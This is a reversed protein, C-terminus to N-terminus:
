GPMPPTPMSMRELLLEFQGMWFQSATMHDVADIGNLAQTTSYSEHIMRNDLRTAAWMGMAYLVPIQETGTPGTYTEDQGDEGVSFQTLPIIATLRILSGEEAPLRNGPFRLIPTSGPLIQHTTAEFFEGASEETEVQVALM